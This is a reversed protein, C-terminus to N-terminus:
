VLVLMVSFNNLVIQKWTKKYLFNKTHIHCTCATFATWCELTANCDTVLYRLVSLWEQRTVLKCCLPKNLSIWLLFRDNLSLWHACSFLHHAWALCVNRETPECPRIYAPFSSCSCTYYHMSRADRNITFGSLHNKFFQTNVLVSPISCCM